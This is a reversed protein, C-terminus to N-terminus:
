SGTMYARVALVGALATTGAFWLLRRPGGAPAYFWPALAVGLALTGYLYHLEDPARREDALLLLGIGVQAVLATQALALAHTTISGAGRARWYAIGGVLAAAACVAVAVLGVVQHADLM